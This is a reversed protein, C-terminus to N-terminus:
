GNGAHQAVRRHKSLDAGSCSSSWDDGHSFVCGRSCVGMWQLNLGSWCRRTAPLQCQDGGLWPGRGPTRARRFPDRDLSQPAAEIEGVAITSAPRM